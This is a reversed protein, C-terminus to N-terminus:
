DADNTVEAVVSELVRAGRCVVKGMALHEALHFLIQEAQEHGPAQINCELKVLVDCECRFLKVAAEPQNVKDMMGGVQLFM